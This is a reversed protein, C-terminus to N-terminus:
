PALYAGALFERRVAQVLSTGFTRDIAHSADIIATFAKVQAGPNTKFYALWADRSGGPGGLLRDPFGQDRLKERLLAHFKDHVYKSLRELQQWKEGGLFKPIPHHREIRRAIRAFRSGTQAASGAAIFRGAGAVSGAAFVGEIPLYIVQEAYYDAFDSVGESVGRMGSAFRPLSAVNGGWATGWTAAGQVGLYARGDGAISEYIDDWDRTIVLSGEYDPDNFMLGLPDTRDIPNSGLAEYLSLGDPYHMEPAVEASVGPTAANWGLSALHLGLGSPDRQPYRGLLASYIRNLNNYKGTEQDFWITQHGFPLPLAIQRSKWDVDTGAASAGASTGDGREYGTHTADTWLWRGFAEYRFQHRLSGNTFGSGPGNVQAVV